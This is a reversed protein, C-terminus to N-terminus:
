TGRRLVHTQENPAEDSFIALRGPVCSILAASFAHLVRDLAEELPLEQGDLDADEAVLVCTGPAGESHLQRAMTAPEATPIATVHREDLWAFHALKYRLKRRLMDNSLSDIFRPRHERSIFRALGQEHEVRSYHVVSPLM